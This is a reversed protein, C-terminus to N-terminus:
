EYYLHCMHLTYTKHLIHYQDITINSNWHSNNGKIAKIEYFREANVELRHTYKYLIRLHSYIKMHM